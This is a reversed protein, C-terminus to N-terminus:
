PASVLFKKGTVTLGYNEFLLDLFTPALRTMDTSSGSSRLEGQWIVEVKEPLKSKELDVLIIEFFRPYSTHSSVLQGGNVYDPSSLAHTAGSGVSYKYLVAVNAKNDLSSKYGKEVMKAEILKIIGRDTLSLSNQSVVSFSPNQPPATYNATNITGKLACGGLFIAIVIIVFRM